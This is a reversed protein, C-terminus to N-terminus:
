EGKKEFLTKPRDVPQSISRLIEKKTEPPLAKQSRTIRKTLGPSHQIFANAEDATSIQIPSKKPAIQKPFLTQLFEDDLNVLDEKRYLKDRPKVRFLARNPNPPRYPTSPTTPHPTAWPERIHWNSKRINHGLRDIIPPRATDDYPSSRPTKKKASFAKPPTFQAKHQPTMHWMEERPMKTTPSATKRKFFNKAARIATRAGKAINKGKAAWNMARAAMVAAKGAAAAEGIGTAMLAGEITGILAGTLLQGATTHYFRNLASQKGWRNGAYVGFTIGSKTLPKLVEMKGSKKKRPPKKRAKSVAGGRSMPQPAWSFTGKVEDNFPKKEVFRLM